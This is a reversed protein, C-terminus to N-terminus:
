IYGNAVNRWFEALKLDIATGIGKEYYNALELMASTNGSKAAEKYMELETEPSIEYNPLNM